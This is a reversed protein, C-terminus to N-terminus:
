KHFFNCMHTYVITYVINVTPFFAFFFLTPIFCSFYNFIDSFTQRYQGCDKCFYTGQQHWM